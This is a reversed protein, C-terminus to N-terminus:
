RLKKGAELVDPSEYLPWGDVWLVNAVFDIDNQGVVTLWHVKAVDGPVDFIAVELAFIDGGLCDVVFEDLILAEHKNATANICEVAPSVALSGDAIDDCFDEFLGPLWEVAVFDDLSDQFTAM